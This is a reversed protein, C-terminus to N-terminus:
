VNINPFTLAKEVRLSFFRSHLNEVVTYVCGQRVQKVTFAKEGTITIDKISLDAKFIKALHDWAAKDTMGAEFWPTGDRGLADVMVVPATLGPMGNLWKEINVRDPAAAFIFIPALSASLHDGLRKMYAAYRAQVKNMETKTLEQQAFRLAFINPYSSLPHVVLEAQTTTMQKLTTVVDKVRQFQTQDFSAQRSRDLSTIDITRLKSATLM